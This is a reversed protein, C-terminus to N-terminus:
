SPPRILPDIGPADTAEADKRWADALRKLGVRDCLSALDLRSNPDDLAALDADLRPGLTVPDLAERLREVSEAM